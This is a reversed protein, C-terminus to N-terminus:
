YLKAKIADFDKGKPMVFLCKGGSRGEWLGGIDRKEKSDDNSWRDEGKYEVVLYRGDNLLCVFDPYFKDTSTQLWFAHSPRREINRVWFQVQPLSADIFQACQFEEGEAKLDSVRPYYHKQFQYYGKYPTTSYNLPNPDFQFCAEPSVVLTKEGENFLLTQYAANRAERRHGDMKAAAAKMLRYKDHVLEDLSFGREEILYRLLRSLFIGSETPTIDPHSIKRDLWHALESVTWGMDAALVTIQEQLESLFHAEIKGSKTIQIEGKQGTPRKSPFETESLSADCASLQWPIELFHTTEFPEFLDGSKVALVPISFIEGRESPTKPTKTMVHRSQQRARAIAAQGEPTSFCNELVTWEQGNLPERITLTKDEADFTVKTAVNPSLTEMKPIEPIPVTLEEKPTEFLLEQQSAHEPVILDKAELREFGNQILADTLANAAQAFSRSAAFTYAMNLAARVKRKANPLRMVRGLLQEVATTSRMEAVSCLVYAFPCDWGERLAQVTIVFRIPCNPSALEVGELDKDTGTARAIQEQPIKHDNMLHVEVVDVTLTEKDKYQPQAQLLMIPRIYEGTEQREMKAAAELHSRQGIADALLEKWAPKTELRIPMKIMEEAHLEAASVTHLVNSPRKETDPTATFEVICSPHFRALTDFSLDTRANHAEDVIVIPRRMRLVNALSHIPEGNEYCEIQELVEAPLGSFHGMLAGSSQYVKRGETDEVRFAQMTSVIITTSADLTPHQVALAERINLITLEGATEALAQRYPHNRGKLASLTQERITNSPVLWLVLPHDAQLLERAAVGVAYCAVLTKGGGTPLRLCVYPLGPLGEVRHYPRDTVEYFATKASGLRNCENFYNSLAEITRQQYEKLTFM